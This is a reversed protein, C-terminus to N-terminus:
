LVRSANNTPAFAPNISELLRELAARALLRCQTRWFSFPIGSTRAARRAINSVATKSRSKLHLCSQRGSSMGELLQFCRPPHSQGSRSKKVMPSILPPTLIVQDGQKVGSNVEIRTGFDRVVNVNRLRAIGDQVVAVSLGKANFIIAESPLIL